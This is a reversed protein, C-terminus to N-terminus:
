FASWSSTSVRTCALHIIGIKETASGVKTGGLNSGAGSWLGRWQTELASELPTDMLLWDCSRGGGRTVEFLLVVDEM